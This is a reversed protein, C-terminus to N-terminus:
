PKSKSQAAYRRNKEVFRAWIWRANDLCRQEVDQARWRRDEERWLLDREYYDREEERWGQDEKRWSRGGRGDGLRLTSLGVRGQPMARTCAVVRYLVVDRFGLGGWGGDNLWWAVGTLIRTVSRSRVTVCRSQGEMRATLGGGRWRPNLSAHICARV